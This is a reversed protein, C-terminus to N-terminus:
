GSLQGQVGGCSTLKTTKDVKDNVPKKSLSLPPCSFIMAYSSVGIEDAFDDQFLIHNPPQM